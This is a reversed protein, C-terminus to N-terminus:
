LSSKIAAIHLVHQSNEKWSSCSCLIICGSCSCRKWPIRQVHAQTGRSEICSPLAIGPSTGRHLLRRHSQLLRLSAILDDFCQKWVHPRVPGSGLCKGCFAKHCFAIRQFVSQVGGSKHNSRQRGLWNARQLRWRGGGVCCRKLCPPMQTPATVADLTPCTRCM